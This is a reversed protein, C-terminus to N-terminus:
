VAACLTKHIEHRTFSGNSNLFNHHRNQAHAPAKLRQFGHVAAAQPRKRCHLGLQSGPQMTVALGDEATSLLSGCDVPGCGVASEEVAFCGGLKM